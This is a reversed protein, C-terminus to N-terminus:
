TNIGSVFSIEDMAYNKVAPVATRHYAAMNHRDKSESHKMISKILSDDLETSFNIKRVGLKLARQVDDNPIGTGGHLVLPVEPVRGHVEELLDFDLRYSGPEYYGHKNGIRVALLDVETEKVYVAAEGPKVYREGPLELGDEEGGITGLEGEVLVGAEHAVKVIEKTLQVNKELCYSSGDLMISNWGSNICTPIISMDTCHDLHVVVLSPDLDELLLSFFSRLRNPGYLKVVSPSTQLFVQSSLERAAEAVCRASEISFVNFACIAKAMMGQVTNIGPDLM